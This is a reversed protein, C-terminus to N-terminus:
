RRHEARVPPTLIFAISAAAVAGVANAALDLIEFTRSPQILQLAEILGGYFMTGTAALLAATMPRLMRMLFLYLLGAQVGYAMAHAIHDPVGEVRINPLAGLSLLVVAYLLNAVGLQWTGAFTM